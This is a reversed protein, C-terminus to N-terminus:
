GNESAINTEPLTDGVSKWHLLTKNLFFGLSKRLFFFCGNKQLSSDRWEAKQPQHHFWTLGVLILCRVAM